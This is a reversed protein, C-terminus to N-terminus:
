GCSVALLRYIKRDFVDCLKKVNEESYEQGKEVFIYCHKGIARLITPAEYKGENGEKCFSLFFKVEDGVQPPKADARQITTGWTDSTERFAKMASRLEPSIRAKLLHTGDKPVQCLGATSSLVSFALIFLVLAFRTVEKM